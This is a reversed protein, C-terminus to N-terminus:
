GQANKALRRLVFGVGPVKKIVALQADRKRLVELAHSHEEGLAALRRDFERIQEDRESITALAAQHEASLGAIDADREDLTALAQRHEAALAEVDADRQDLTALAASHAEGVRSLELGRDVLTRAFERLTADAPYHEEIERQLQTLGAVSFQDQCLIGTASESAQHRLDERV